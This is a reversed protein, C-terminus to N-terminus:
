VHARGINIDLGTQGSESVVTGGAVLLFSILTNVASVVPAKLKMNKAYSFSFLAVIWLTLYNMTFQYPMNIVTYVADGSHFLGLFSESGLSCLIQSIAGIMTLGTLAMMASQMASLFLNQGIRPVICWWGPVM